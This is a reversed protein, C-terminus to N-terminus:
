SRKKSYETRLAARAIEHLEGSDPVFNDAKHRDSLRRMVDLITALRRDAARADLGTVETELLSALLAFVQQAVVEHGTAQFEALRDLLIDVRSIIRATRGSRMEIEVVVADTDLHAGPAELLIDTGTLRWHRGDEARAFGLESLKKALEDPVEMLVDVDYTLFEDSATWFYVAMGGVVVPHIGLPAAVAEVVTVVELTREAVDGLQAARVIERRLASAGFTERGGV